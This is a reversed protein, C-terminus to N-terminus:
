RVNDDVVELPGILYFVGDRQLEVAGVENGAEDELMVEETAPNYRVWVRVTDHDRIV